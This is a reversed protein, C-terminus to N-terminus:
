SISKEQKQKEIKRKAYTARMADIRKKQWAAYKEPDMNKIRDKIKARQKQRKEETWLQKQIESQKANLKDIEAQSKNKWVDILHLRKREKEIDSLNEWYAKQAISQKQKWQDSGLNSTGSKWENQKDISRKEAIEKYKVSDMSKWGNSIAQSLKLRQEPTMQKYRYSTAEAAENINLSYQQLYYDKEATDNVIANIFEQNGNTMRDIALAMAYYMDLDNQEKFYQKLLVHLQLHEAPTVTILNDKSNDCQLDHHAYWSKPIIHHRQVKATTPPTNRRYDIINRMRIYFESQTNTFINM